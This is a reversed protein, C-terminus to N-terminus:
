VARSMGKGKGRHRRTTNCKNFNFTGHERRESPGGLHSKMQQDKKRKKEQCIEVSEALILKLHSNKLSSNRIKWILLSGMNYKLKTRYKEKAANKVRAIM